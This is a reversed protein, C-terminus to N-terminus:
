RSQLIRFETRRNRQHEADSCSVGNGCRNILQSEGFGKAVLRGREIGRGVLYNVVSQARQQSLSQNYDDNGRSDTHSRIEISLAPKDRMLKLLNEDIITKSQSTIRASNYEYLIPLLNNKGVLGCDIKEWVTM